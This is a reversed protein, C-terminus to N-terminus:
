SELSACFPTNIGWAWYLVVIVWQLGFLFSVHVTEAAVQGFVVGATGIYM